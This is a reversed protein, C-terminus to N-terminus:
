VYVGEEEEEDVDAEADEDEEEVEEIEAYIDQAAMEACYERCFREDSPFDTLRWGEGETIPEGCRDCKPLEEWRAQAWARAEAFTSPELEMGCGGTYGFAVHIEFPPRVDGADARWERAIRCAAEVAERPDSYECGEGAYKSVLMDSGAYDLGGVAVEVVQERSYYYVQRSVYYENRNM